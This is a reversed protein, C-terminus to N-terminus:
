HKGVTGSSAMFFGLLLNMAIVIRIFLLDRRTELFCELEM